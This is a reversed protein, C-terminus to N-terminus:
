LDDIKRALADLKADLAALRREVDPLAAPAPWPSAATAPPVGQAPVDARVGAGFVPRTRADAQVRFNPAQLVNGAFRGALKAALDDYSAGRTAADALVETLARTFDGHGDHEYASQTDQCAAFHIEWGLADPQQPPPAEVVARAGGGRKDRFKRVAEPPARLYRSNARMQPAMRTFAARTNTGSHCCDTFLVLEVGATRYRDFLEGQDDDIFFEGSLYDHPVWAEDFGDGEDRNLDPLQTGHGAYHVVVTDGPKSEALLRDIATAIGMRTAAEDCLTQVDFGLGKLVAAADRADAVCGSLPQTEYRDIGITLARRRGAGSAAGTADRGATAAADTGAASTALGRLRRGCVDVEADGLHPQPLEDGPALGLVRHMVANMTPADNDFGGHTRSQTADPGSVGQTPSWAVDVGAAPAGGGLGFWAVLAPDARISEELGLIPTAHVPDECANRVFYLLSKRYVKMVDDDLETSRDMTFLAFRGIRGPVLPMLHAKFLDVRVAPALFALTDVKANPVGAAALADTLAPLFHCHFISGASHGVAHLGVPKAGAAASHARLRAALRTAFRHAGGPAGNATVAASSLLASLKIRDWTPKGAAPGLTIELLADSADTVINRAALERQKQRFVELFGTEWVFFIPYVGNALWWHRDRLAIGLGGREDVLGGHAFFALRPQPASAIWAGIRAILEHLDGEDNRHCGEQSLQGMALNVVHSRFAERELDTCACKGLFRAGPEAAYDYAAQAADYRPEAPEADAVARGGAGSKAPGFQALYATAAAADRPATSDRAATAGRRAAGAMRKGVEARFDALVLTSGPSTRAPNFENFFRLADLPLGCADLIAALAAYTADAQAGGFSERGRDFDGVLAVMLPGQQATGNCGAASAPRLDLSRGTWLSGDPGVTLHQALDIWRLVEVHYRRMAALTAGGRWDARAPRWTHHVHLSDIRRVRPCALLAALQQRDIQSVAGIM